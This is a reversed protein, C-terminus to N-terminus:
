QNRPIVDDKVTVVDNVQLHKRPQTWKQRTQLSILFLKKWRSWFKNTLHQVWRQWKRSHLDASTFKRPPPLAVKPKLTLFHNPVMSPEATDSSTTGEGTQPQSNAAAKAEYMTWLAENNMQDGYPPSCM